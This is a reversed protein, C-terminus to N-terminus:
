NTFEKGTRLHLFPSLLHHLSGDLTRGRPPLQAPHQATDRQGGQCASLLQTHAPTLPSSLSSLCAPTPSTKFALILLTHEAGRGRPKLFHVANGVREPRCDPRYPSHASRLPGGKRQRGSCARTVPMEQKRHSGPGPHPHPLHNCCDREARPGEGAGQGGAVVRPRETGACQSGPPPRCALWVKHSKRRPCPHHQLCLLLRPHQNAYPCSALGVRHHYEKQHFPSPPRPTRRVLLPPFTSM